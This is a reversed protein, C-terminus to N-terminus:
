GCAFCFEKSVFVPWGQVSDGKGSDGEARSAAILAEFIWSVRIKSAM